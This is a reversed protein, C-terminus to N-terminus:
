VCYVKNNGAVCEITEVMINRTNQETYESENHQETQTNNTHLRSSYQQWRTDVWNCNVFIYIYIDIGIGIDIDVIIEEPVSSM